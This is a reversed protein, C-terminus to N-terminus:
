SRSGQELMEVLDKFERANHENLSMLLRHADLVSERTRHEDRPADPLEQVPPQAQSAARSAGQCALEPPRDIIEFLDSFGMTRLFRQM